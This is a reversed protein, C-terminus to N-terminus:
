SARVHAHGTRGAVDIIIELQATARTNVTMLVIVSACRIRVVHGCCKGGVACYTM